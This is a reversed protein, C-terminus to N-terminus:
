RGSGGSPYSASARTASRPRALPRRSAAFTPLVVAPHGDEGLILALGYDAALRMAGLATGNTGLSSVAIETSWTLEKMVRQVEQVVLPNQGVGGGLVILGPDLM